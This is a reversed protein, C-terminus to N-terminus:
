GLGIFKAMEPPVEIHDIWNPCRGPAIDGLDLLDLNVSVDLPLLPERERRPVYAGAETRLEQALAIFEGLGAAKGFLNGRLLAAAWVHAVRRYKMWNTQLTRESAGAGILRGLVKYAEGRGIRRGMKRRVILPILLTLGVLPGGHSPRGVGKAGRVAPAVAEEELSNFRLCHNLIDSLFDGPFRLEKGADRTDVLRRKFEEAKMAQLFEGRKGTDDPFLMVATIYFWPPEDFDAEALSFFSTKDM